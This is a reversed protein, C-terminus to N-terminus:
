NPWFGDRTRDPLIEWYCVNVFATAHEPMPRGIVRGNRRGGAREM